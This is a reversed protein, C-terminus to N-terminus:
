PFSVLSYLIMQGHAGSGVIRDWQIQLHSGLEAAVDSVPL